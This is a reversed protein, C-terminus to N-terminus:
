IESYTYSNRISRAHYGGPSDASRLESFVSEPVNFYDYTRGSKFEIRLINSDPDYGIREISTSDVFHM